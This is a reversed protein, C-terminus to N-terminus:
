KYIKMMLTRHRRNVQYALYFSMGMFWVAAFFLAASVYYRRLEEDTTDTANM